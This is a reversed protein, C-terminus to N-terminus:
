FEAGWASQGGKLHEHGMAVGRSLLAVVARDGRFTGHPPPTSSWSM